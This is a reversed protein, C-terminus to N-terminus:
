IKIIESYNTTISEWTYQSMAISFMKERIINFSNASSEKMIKYLDASSSFYLSQNMTTERNTLADFCVVPLNLCMAEVLSPATGCMSHSHIYLMANSRIADLEYQDYIANLLVINKISSYQKNLEKGYSTADWNSILVLKESPLNKFTELLLHLNNDIQARSVSVSYQESLFPYKKLLVDTISQKNVHDGGYKIVGSSCLFEHSLSNSLIENDAINKTAYKTSIRYNIKLWYRALKNYKERQWENLGGYNVVINKKFLCNLVLLFGASPGLILLVDSTFFAHIISFSDYFVSQFGNAKFPLYCLKSNNYTKLRKKKAKKTCYVTFDYYKSLEKTLNAALTEFGGYNPPLGNTGIIAVRLRKM